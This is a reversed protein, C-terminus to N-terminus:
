PLIVIEVRRNARKGEATDNTSVPRQEGYAVAEARTRDVAKVDLLARLVTCARAASLEWNSDYLHKTRAIPANDTHGEVRVSRGVYDRALVDAIRNLTRRGDATLEDKGSPFLIQQELTLRIEGESGRAVKVEQIADFGTGEEEPEIATPVIAPADAASKEKERLRALLTRQNEELAMKEGRRVDLLRELRNNDRELDQVRAQTRELEQQIGTCGCAALLAVSM